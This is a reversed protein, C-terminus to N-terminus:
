MRETSVVPAAMEAATTCDKSHPTWLSENNWHRGSACCGIIQGRLSIQLVENGRYLSLSHVSKSRLKPFHRIHTYEGSFSKVAATIVMVTPQIHIDYNMTGRTENKPATINFNRKQVQVETATKRALTKLKNRKELSLAGEKLERTWWGSLFADQSTRKYGRREVGGFSGPVSKSRWRTTSACFICVSYTALSILFFSM